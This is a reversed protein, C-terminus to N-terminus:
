SDEKDCEVFCIDVIDIPGPQYKEKIPCGQMECESRWGPAPHSYANGTYTVEVCKGCLQCKDPTTPIIISM